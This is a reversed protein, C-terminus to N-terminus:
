GFATLKCDTPVFAAMNALQGAQTIGSIKGLMAADKGGGFAIAGTAEVDTATWQARVSDPRADFEVTPSVSIVVHQFGHWTFSPRLAGAGAVAGAGAGAGAGLLFTDAVVALNALPQCLETWQPFPALGPTRARTYNTNNFVECYRSPGDSPYM